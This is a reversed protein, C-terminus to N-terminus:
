NFFGSTILAAFIAFFGGILALTNTRLTAHIRDVDKEIMGMKTELLGMRTDLGAVREHLQLIGNEIRTMRDGLETAPEAPLFSKLTEASQAGLARELDTYLRSRDDATAPLFTYRDHSQTCPSSM